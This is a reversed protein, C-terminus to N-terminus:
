NQMKQEAIKQIEGMTERIDAKGTIMDWARADIETNVYSLGPTNIVNVAQSIKKDNLLFSQPMSAYQKNDLMAKASPNAGSKLMELQNSQLWEMFAVMGKQKKASRVDKSRVIVYQDAGSCQILNNLDWQPVM